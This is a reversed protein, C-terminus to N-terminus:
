DLSNQPAVMMPYEGEFGTLLARSCEFAEYVAPDTTRVFLTSGRGHYYVGAESLAVFMTPSATGHLSGAGLEKARDFMLSIVGDITAPTGVVQLVEGIGTKPLHLIFWGVLEDRRNRVAVRDIVGEPRVARFRAWTLETLEPDTVDPRLEFQELVADGQEALDQATLPSTSLRRRSRPQEVAIVDIDRKGFVKDALKAAGSLMPTAWTQLRGNRNLVGGLAAAGPQLVRTWRLSYQQHMRGDTAREGSRRAAANTRDSLVIYADSGYSARLLAKTCSANRHDPHVSFYATCISWVRTDHFRMPSSAGYMMGVVSGEHVAVFAHVPPAGVRADALHHALVRQHHARIADVSHDRAGFAAIHLEIIGELDDKEITRVSYASM